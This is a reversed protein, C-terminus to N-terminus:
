EEFEIVEALLNFISKATSKTMGDINQLEEPSTEVLDEVSHLGGAQLIQIVRKTLGPIDSLPTHDSNPNENNQNSEFLANLKAKAEPATLLEAFQSETKLDIKYDTIQCALKVNSGDKGIALSLEEDKIICIAEKNQYDIKIQQINAPSMANIILEEVNTTHQIIDIRENGLERVISQIRVGRMGVCAGVPDVDDRTSQVIIKSRIGAQRAIAVINVMKDYIEPIELEFLKKVFEPSTRSLIVKPGKPDYEIKHIIAKIRDDQRYRENPMQHHKPMVGEVKGLDIFIADKRAWHFYGHVLEGEKKKFENYINLSEIEKLKQIVIHKAAVTAIRSFESPSVKIKIEDDLSADPFGHKQAQKLTIELSSDSVKEVVKKIAYLFVDNKEKDLVVEVNDAQGYKKKYASILSEKLIKIVADRELNKGSCIQHIAEFLNISVTKEAAM